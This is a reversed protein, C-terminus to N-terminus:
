AQLALFTHKKPLTLVFCTHKSKENYILTGNHKRVINTSISLGLGSGEGIDKSTFMPNFMKQQIDSPIGLGSDTISLTLDNEQEEISIRVWKDDMEKVVSFANNILNILVQSIQLRQCQIQVQSTDNIYEIDIKVGGQTYREYGLGMVDGIIDQIETYEFEDQDSHRTVRRMSEILSSVHKVSNIVQDMTDSLNDTNGKLFRRKVREAIMSIELIPSNIEHALGTSIEGLSALKASQLLYVEMENKETMDQAIYVFNNENIESKLKVCSYSVPILVGAWTKLYAEGNYTKLIEPKEDSDNTKDFVFIDHISKELLQEEKYALMEKVSNNVTIVRGTSDVVILAEGMSSFISEIYNRSSVLLANSTLLDSAMKNITQALANLENVYSPKIPKNLEGQSILAIGSFLQSIGQNFRIAMIWVILSVLLVISLMAAIVGAPIWQITQPLKDSRENALTKTDYDLKELTIDISSAINSFHDTASNRASDAKHWNLISIRYQHILSLIEEQNSLKLVQVQASLQDLLSLYGLGSDNDNDTHIQYEQKLWSLQVRLRAITLDSLPFRNEIYILENKLKLYRTNIKENLHTSENTLSVIENFSTQYYDIKDFIFQFSKYHKNITSSQEQASVLESLTNNVTDKFEPIYKVRANYFDHVHRANNMFSNAFLRSKRFDSLAYNIHSSLLRTLYEQESANKFIGMSYNIFIVGSGGLIFTAILLFILSSRVGIVTNM